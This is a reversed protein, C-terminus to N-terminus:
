GRELDWVRLTKDYSSSVARRGDPTVAVARVRGTHGKLTHVDAGSALDRVKFLYDWTVFLTRRGDPMVAIPWSGAPYGKLTRVVAGSQLDWVKLVEGSASLAHRGDPMLTM